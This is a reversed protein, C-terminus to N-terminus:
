RDFENCDVLQSALKEILRKILVAVFGKPFRVNDLKRPFIKDIIEALKERNIEWVILFHCLIVFKSQSRCIPYGNLRKILDKSFM